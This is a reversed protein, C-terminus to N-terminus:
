SSALGCFLFIESLPRSFKSTCNLVVLQVCPFRVLLENRSIYDNMRTPVFGPAVCNVRTDPAMESALAKLLNM